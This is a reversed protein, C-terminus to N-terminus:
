LAQQRAARRYEQGRLIQLLSFLKGISNGNQMLAPNDGVARERFQFLQERGCLHLIHFFLRCQLLYEECDDTFLLFLYCHIFVKEAVHANHKSTGHAMNEAAHVGDDRDGDHRNRKHQQEDIHKAACNLGARIVIHIVQQGADQQNRNCATYGIRSVAQKHIHLPADEFPEVGHRNRTGGHQPPM